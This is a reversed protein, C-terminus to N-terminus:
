RMNGHRCYEMAICWRKTEKDIHMGFVRLINEHFPLGEYFIQEAKAKDPRFFMKSAVQRVTGNVVLESLYVEAEGGIGLLTESRKCKSLIHQSLLDVQACEEKRAGSVRARAYRLVILVAIASLIGCASTALIIPLPISKDTGEEPVDVDDMGGISSNSLMTAKHHNFLSGANYDMNMLDICKKGRPAEFPLVVAMMDTTDRRSLPSICDFRNLTGSAVDLPPTRMRKYVDDVTSHCIMYDDSGGITVESFHKVIPQVFDVYSDKLLEGVHLYGEFGVYLDWDSVTTLSSLFGCGLTYEVEAWVYCLAKV